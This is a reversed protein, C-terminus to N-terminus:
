SAAALHRRRVRQGVLACGVVASVTNLAWDLLSADRSHVLVLQTLEIFASLASLSAVVKWRALRPWGLAVLAAAPVFMLLNVWVDLHHVHLRSADRVGAEIATRRVVHAAGREVDFPVMTLVAGLALYAALLWRWRLTAWSAGTTTPVTM